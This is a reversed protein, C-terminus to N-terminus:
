RVGLEPHRGRKTRFFAKIKEIDADVDDSPYIIPGLGVEKDVYDAFTTLIPVGAKKAIFYFGKKWEPRYSRSGEPTVGLYFKEHAQFVQVVQAITGEAKSRDIPIAGLAKLIPGFPFVMAEKKILFNFKIGWIRAAIIGLFGDWNSTHPGGAMVCKKIDEPIEGTVKWGFIWLIFRLFSRM